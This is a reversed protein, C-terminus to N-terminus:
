WKRSRVTGSIALDWFMNLKLTDKCWSFALNDFMIHETVYDLFVSDVLTFECSRGPWSISGAEGVWCIQLLHLHEKMGLFWRVHSMWSRIDCLCFGCVSILWNATVALVSECDPMCSHTADTATWDHFVSQRPSCSLSAQSTWCEPRMRVLIMSTVAWPGALFHTVTWCCPVSGVTQM